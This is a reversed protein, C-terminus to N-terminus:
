AQELDTADKWYGCSYGMIPDLMAAYVDNDIDYTTNGL